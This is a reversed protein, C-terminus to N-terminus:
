MYETGNRLYKTPEQEKSQRVVQEIEAEKCVAAAADEEEGGESGCFIIAASTEPEYRCM